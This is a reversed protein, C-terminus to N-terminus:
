FSQLALFTGRKAEEGYARQPPIDNKMFFHGSLETKSAPHCGVGVSPLSAVLARSPTNAEPTM